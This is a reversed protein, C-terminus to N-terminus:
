RKEAMRKLERENAELAQAERERENRAEQAAQSNFDETLMKKELQIEEAFQNRLKTVGKKFANYRPTTKNHPQAYFRWSSAVAAKPHHLLRSVQLAM